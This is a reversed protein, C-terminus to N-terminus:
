KDVHKDVQEDCHKRKTWDLRPLKLHRLELKTWEFALAASHSHM